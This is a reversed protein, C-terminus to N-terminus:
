ITGGGIDNEFKTMFADFAAEARNEEEIEFDYVAHIKSEAYLNYIKLIDNKFEVLEPEEVDSKEFPCEISYTINPLGVSSDGGIMLYLM